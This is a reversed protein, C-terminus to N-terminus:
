YLDLSLSCASFVGLSLDSIALSAVFMNPITRMRRNLVTILLTIFNGVFLFLLIVAFIASELIVKAKSRSQLEKLMDGVQKETSNM